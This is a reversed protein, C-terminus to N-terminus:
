PSELKKLNMTEELKVISNQVNGPRGFTERRATPAAVNM